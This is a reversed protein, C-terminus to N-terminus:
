EKGTNTIRFLPTATRLRKEVRTDDVHFEETELWEGNRSRLAYTKGRVLRTWVGAALFSQSFGLFANGTWIGAALNRSRLAYTGGKVLQKIPIAEEVKM